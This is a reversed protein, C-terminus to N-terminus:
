TNGSGGHNMHHTSPDKRADLAQSHIDSAFESPEEYNTSTSRRATTSYAPPGDDTSVSAAEVVPLEIPRGVLISSAGPRPSRKVWKKMEPLFVPLAFGRIRRDKQVRQQESTERGGVISPNGAMLIAVRRRLEDDPMQTEDEVLTRSSWTRITSTGRSPRHGRVDGLTSEKDHQSRRRRKCYRAIYVGVGVIVCGLSILGGLVFFLLTIDVAYTDAAEPVM